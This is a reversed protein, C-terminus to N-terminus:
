GTLQRKEIAIVLTLYFRFSRMQIVRFVFVSEATALAHWPWAEAATTRGKSHSFAAVTRLGAAPLCRQSRWVVEGRQHEATRAGAVVTRSCFPLSVASATSAVKFAAALSDASSRKSLPDLRRHLDYAPRPSFASHLDLHMQKTEAFAALEGSSVSPGHKSRCDSAEESPRTELMLRATLEATVDM